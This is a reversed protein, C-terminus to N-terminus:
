WCCGFLSFSTVYNLLRRFSVSNVSANVFMGFLRVAWWAPPFCLPQADKPHLPLRSPVSPPFLRLLMVNGPLLWACFSQM